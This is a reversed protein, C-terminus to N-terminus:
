MRSTTEAVDAGRLALRLGNAARDGIKNFARQLLFNAGPLRAAVGRLVLKAEYTVRAGSRSAEVRVEDISTLWRTRSELLVRRPAEYATVEYRMVMAGPTNLTLEYAAGVGQGLGQVLVSRKVGPDWTAFNTVDAMYAFAEAPSLATEVTTTYFAM